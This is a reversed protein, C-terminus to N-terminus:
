VKKKLKKKIQKMVDPKLRIYNQKNSKSNGHIANGTYQGKYEYCAFNSEKIWAVRKEYTSNVHKVYYRYLAFVDDFSPQPQLLIYVPKRNQSRQLYFHNEKLVIRRYHNDNVRVFYTLNTTGNSMWSGCDDWFQSRGSKDRRELNKKNDVIFFCNEKLGRPVEKAIRKPKILCKMLEDVNLFRFHSRLGRPLKSGYKAIVDKVNRPHKEDPFKKRSLSEDKSVNTYMGSEFKNWIFDPACFFNKNPRTTENSEIFDNTITVNKPQHDEINASEYGPLSDIHELRVVGVSSNVTEEQIWSKNLTQPVKTVDAPNEAYSYSSNDSYDDFTKWLSPLATQKTQNNLFENTSKETVDVVEYDFSSNKEINSLNTSDLEAFNKWKACCDQKPSSTIIRNKSSISSTLNINFGIKNEQLPVFHNPVFNQLNAPMETMSWMVTLKTCNTRRVNRGYIDKTLPESLNKNLTPPCYSSIGIGLAASVAAITLMESWGGISALDRLFTKYIPHVLRHDQFTNKFNKHNVDYYTENLAVELSTILRLHIHHCENGFLGRSIARFLCNGDGKVFMPIFKTLMIPHYIELIKRATCDENGFTANEINNIEPLHVDYKELLLAENRAAINHSNYLEFCNTALRFFCFIVIKTKDFFNIQFLVITHYHSHLSVLTHVQLNVFILPRQNVNLWWTLLRNIM